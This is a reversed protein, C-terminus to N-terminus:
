YSRPLGLSREAISALIMEESIPHVRHVRVDRWYREVDYDDYYGHGGFTQFARDTALSAAGSSALLAFNAENSFPKDRDCLSAAKLAMIEAAELQAYADALPFQIGQNSGILKGFVNRKKAWEAANGLALKGTGVLSASTAVRDMNFIPVVSHWADGLKGLLQSSGIEKLEINFNNVFDYGLKSLKQARIKEREKELPVLFMSTGLSKKESKESTRAFVILYDARDFNNVFAKSGTISYQGDPDKSARTQIASADLGSSEESLAISIKLRGKALKPLLSKKQEDSGGTSIIKSVLAGSLFLYAGLGAFRESTEQIALCFDVLGKELGGFKSEILFGFLGAEALSNWYEEPFRKEKCVARWYSQDFRSSVKSIEDKVQMDIEFDLVPFFEEIVEQCDLSEKDL